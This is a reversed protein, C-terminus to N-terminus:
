INENFYHNEGGNNFDDSKFNLLLKLKLIKTISYNLLEKM